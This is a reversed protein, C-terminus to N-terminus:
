IEVPLPSKEFPAGDLEAHPKPRTVLELKRQTVVLLYNFVFALTLPSAIAALRIVNNPDDFANGGVIGIGALPCIAILVQGIKVTEPHLASAASLVGGAILPLIWILFLTLAALVGGSRGARLLFFQYCFSFAALTLVGVAIAYAASRQSDSDGPVIVTSVITLAAFVILCLLFVAIRNTAADEFPSPRRRGLRKARLLGRMFEARDPTM